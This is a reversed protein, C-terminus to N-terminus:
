ETTCRNGIKQPKAAATAWLMLTEPAKKIQLEPEIGLLGSIASCRKIPDRHQRHHLLWKPKPVEMSGHLFEAVAQFRSEVLGTALQAQAMPDVM